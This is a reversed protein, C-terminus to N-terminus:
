EPVGGSACRLARTRRAGSHRRQKQLPKNSATTIASSQNNGSYREKRFMRENLTASITAARLRWKGRLCLFM